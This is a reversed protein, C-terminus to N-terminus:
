FVIACASSYADEGDTVAQGYCRLKFKDGAALTVTATAVKQGVEEASIVHEGGNIVYSVRNRGTTFWCKRKYNITITQARSATVQNSDNWFGQSDSGSQSDGRGGHAWM